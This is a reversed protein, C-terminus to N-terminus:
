PMKILSKRSCVCIYINVGVSQFASFFARSSDLFPRLPSLIEFSRTRTGIMDVLASTFRPHMWSNPNSTSVQLKERRRERKKKGLVLIHDLTWLENGTRLSHKPGEQGMTTERSSTAVPTISIPLQM